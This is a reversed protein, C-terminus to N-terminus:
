WRGCVQLMVKTSDAGRAVLEQLCSLQSVSRLAAAPLEVNTFSDLVLRKLGAWSASWRCTCIPLAWSVPEYIQSISMCM